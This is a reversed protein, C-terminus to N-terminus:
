AKGQASEDRREVHLRWFLLLGAACGVAACVLAGIGVADTAMQSLTEQFARGLDGHVAQRAAELVSLALRLAVGLFLGFAGGALLSSPLSARGAAKVNLALALVSGIAFLGGYAASAPLLGAAVSSPAVVSAGVIGGLWVGVKAKAKEKFIKGWLLVLGAGVAAGGAVWLLDVLNGQQWLEAVLGKRVLTVAGVLAGVAAGFLAAGLVVAFAGSRPTV